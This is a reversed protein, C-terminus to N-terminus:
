AEDDPKAEVTETAPPTFCPVDHMCYYTVNTDCKDLMVGCSHTSLESCTVIEELGLDCYYFKPNQTAQSVTCSGLFISAVVCVLQLKM